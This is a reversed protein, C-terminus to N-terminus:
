WVASPVLLCILILQQHTLGLTNPCKYVSTFFFVFLECMDSPDQTVADDLFMEGPVDSGVRQNKVHCWVAKVDQPIAQNLNTIYSGYCSAALAKCRRLLSFYMHDAERHTSKYLKHITKKFIVLHKLQSSFWRVM